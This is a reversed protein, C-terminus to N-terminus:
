EMVAISFSYEQYAKLGGDDIVLIKVRHEGAAEPTITWTIRGSSSDIVMGVPATELSYVLSDGDPDEARAEYSYDFGEFAEPSTTVFSPPANPIVMEPSLVADGETEGDFPTVRVRVRDGKHFRNGSLMADQDWPSAEDNILWQYRFVVPDGDVDEAGPSVTIDTGHIIREPSVFVNTVRPPTNSLVVSSSAELLNSTVTVSVVDGKIFDAPCFRSGTVGELLDGNRMWRFVTNRAEGRIEALLCDKSKPSTPQLAVELEGSSLVKATAAPAQPLGAVPQEDRSCGSFVCLMFGCACLSLSLSLSFRM